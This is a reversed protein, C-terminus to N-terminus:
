RPFLTSQPGVSVYVGVLGYWTCVPINGSGTYLGTAHGTGIATPGYAVSGTDQSAQLPLRRPRRGDAQAGSEFGHRCDWLTMVRDFLPSRLIGM